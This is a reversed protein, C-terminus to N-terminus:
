HKYLVFIPVCFLASFISIRKKNSIANSHELRCSNAASFYLDLHATQLPFFPCINLKPWKQEGHVSPTLIDLGNLSPM